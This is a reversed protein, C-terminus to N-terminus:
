WPRAPPPWAASARRCPRAAWTWTPRRRSTARPARAPEKGPVYESATIFGHQLADIGMQAAEAFTVACLHGTVRLGRAHAADIMWGLVDRPGSMVKFWTAGRGAWEDVFRRAAEPSDVGRFPGTRATGAVVYPGAVLLRPGPLRGTDIRRKLALEQHPLQSGATMATTVGLALYLHAGANMPLTVGLGGLYTHEHLSVLGPIVTHGRLDLARAGAPVPTSARPGVAQIRGGALVVTQDDRAPAGTGDVVRVHTLAVVPADVAVFPRVSDSVAPVQAAMPAAALAALLAPLLRARITTM